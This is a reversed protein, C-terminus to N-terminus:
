FNVYGDYFLIKIFLDITDSIFKGLANKKKIYCTVRMKIVAHGLIHLITCM